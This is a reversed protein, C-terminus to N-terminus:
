ICKAVWTKLLWLLIITPFLLALLSAHMIAQFLLGHQLMYDSAEKKIRTRV